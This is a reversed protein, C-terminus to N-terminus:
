KAVKQYTVEDVWADVRALKRSHIFEVLYGCVTSLARETRTAVESLGEGRAFMEFAMAKADNPKRSETAAARRDDKPPADKNLTLGHNGCYSAVEALFREGLDGAKKEGIGRVRLLASKSG